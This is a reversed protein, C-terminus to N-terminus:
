QVAADAAGAGRGSGSMLRGLYSGRSRVTAAFETAYDPAVSAVTSPRAALARRWRALKPRTAFLGLDVYPDFADFYRFVPVYIADVLHYTDGAFYPAAVIVRELQDFKEGLSQRKAEFAAADPLNYLGWIDGLLGSAFEMWARHRARQLPDIPHLSGPSIEDLYECIVASEFLVTDGVRLLPVKGTPSLAIFWDPKAALDVYIREHEIRKEEAVVMARQVFPCLRHSILTLKANM